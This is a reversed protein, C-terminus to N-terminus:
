TERNLKKINAMLQDKLIIKKHLFKFYYTINKLSIFLFESENDFFVLLHDEACTHTEYM